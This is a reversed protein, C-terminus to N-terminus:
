DLHIQSSNPKVGPQVEQQLNLRVSTRLCILLRWKTTNYKSAGSCGAARLCSKIRPQRKPPCGPHQSNVEVDGWHQLDIQLAATLCNTSWVFHPCVLILATREIYHNKNIVITSYPHPLKLTIGLCSTNISRTTSTLNCNLQNTNLRFTRQVKWLVLALHVLLRIHTLDDVSMFYWNGTYVSLRQAERWDFSSKMHQFPTPATLWLSIITLGAWDLQSGDDQAKGTDRPLKLSPPIHTNTRTPTQM